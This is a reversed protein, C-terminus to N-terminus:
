AATKTHPSTKGKTEKSTGAGTFASVDDDDEESSRLSRLIQESCTTAAARM